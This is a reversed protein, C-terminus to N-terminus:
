RLIPLHTERGDARVLRTDPLLVPRISQLVGTM